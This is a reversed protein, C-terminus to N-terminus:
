MRSYIQVFFAKHSYQEVSLLYTNLTTAYVDGMELAYFLFFLLFFAFFVFFFFSFFFCFFVFFFFFFMVFFTNGKAVLIAASIPQFFFFDPKSWIISKQLGHKSSNSILVEVLQKKKYFLILKRKM